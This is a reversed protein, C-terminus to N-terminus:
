ESGAVEASRDVRNALEESNYPIDVLVRYFCTHAAAGIIVLVAAEVIIEGVAQDIPVKHQRQDTRFVEDM